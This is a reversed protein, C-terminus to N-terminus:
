KNVVMVYSKAPLFLSKSKGSPLVYEVEVIARSEVLEFVADHIQTTSYGLFDCALQTLLIQSLIGERSNVLNLIRAEINM